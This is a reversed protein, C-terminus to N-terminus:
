RISSIASCFHFVSIEVDDIHLIYLINLFVVQNRFSNTVNLNCLYFKMILASIHLYYTVLRCAYLGLGWVGFGM